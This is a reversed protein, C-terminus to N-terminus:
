ATTGYIHASFAFDALAIDTGTDQYCEALVGVWGGAGGFGSRPTVLRMATSSTGEPTCVAYFDVLDALAIFYVGTSIRAVSRVVPQAVIGGVGTVTFSSTVPTVRVVARPVKPTSHHGLAEISRPFTLVGFPSITPEREGHEGTVMTLVQAFNDALQNVSQFGASYDTTGKPLKAYSM